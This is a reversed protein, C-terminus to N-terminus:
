SAGKQGRSEKAGVPLLPTAVPSARGAGERASRLGHFRLRYREEAGFPCLIQAM